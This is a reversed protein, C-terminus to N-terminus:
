PVEVCQQSEARRCPRLDEFLGRARAAETARRQREYLEVARQWAHVAETHQGVAHYTHGLQVLTDAEAYTDGLERRRVLAQHYQRLALDHRGTHHSIYALSTLAEAEGEAHRHARHVTLAKRCYARARHHRGLRANQWGVADLAIATWVPNRLGESMRLARVAHELAERDDGRRACLWGLLQETHAQGFVDGASEALALSRRLHPEADACNGAQGLAHGLLRHANAQAVPDNLRDAAELGAQWMTMHEHVRGRRWHFVTLAWALQWVAEDWRRQQALLQAALLCPHNDEFWAMAAKRSVLRQPVVGDAPSGLEIPPRHRYLSGDAAHATHLYFDVLRREAQRRDPLAEERSARDAAYQRVLDHMRYRGPRHQQVLHAAALERLLRRTRTVPLAALSSIAAVGIDPGAALGLMRLLRATDDALGLCSWSFVAALHGSIQSGGHSDVDRLEDALAHLPVTPRAAARAALISLALPLGACQQLLRTFAEPEAACRESGLQEILLQRAEAPALVDLALTRAGRTIVLGSLQRRSTIVVTPTCDGPLLPGVQEADLANDLLILIRRNAVLSRYLAAQPELTAPVESPQVGLSLLFGRIATSPALVEGSPDFGRLDVYLQGDPFRDVNDGAWRVALSTKGIGGVGGIASIVVTGGRREHSDCALTLADLERVRGVFGPPAAPLQRPVPGGTAVRGSIASVDLAPDAVLIQRHLERLSPGPATHLREALTSRVRQYQNLAAAQRGCRYLATMLQGALHEDLPRMAARRLLDALLEHHRGARLRIDDRDLEALHREADLAERLENLRPADLNAFADGRWLGLAEDFLALADDDEATARAKTTLRHFRTLDISAPEVHLVYGGPHRTITVGEVRSLLSRLRSLYGHLADRPSRPLDVGWVGDLLQDVPVPKNPNALLLALVCRQKAPGIDVRDGGFRVEVDGLLRFEVMVEDGAVSASPLWWSSRAATASELIKSPVALVPPAVQYPVNQETVGVEAEARRGGSRRARRRPRFGSLRPSASMISGFVSADARLNAAVMLVVNSVASNFRRTSDTSFAAAIISM